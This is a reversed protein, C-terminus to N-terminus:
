SRGLKTRLAGPIAVFRSVVTQDGRRALFALCPASARAHNFVLVRLSNGAVASPARVPIPDKAESLMVAYLTLAACLIEAAWVSAFDAGPKHRESTHRPRKQGQSKSARIAKVTGDRQQCAGLRSANLGNSM